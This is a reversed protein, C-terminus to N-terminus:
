DNSLGIHILIFPQMRSLSCNDPCQEGSSGTALWELSTSWYDSIESQPAFGMVLLVSFYKFLLTQDLMFPKGNYKLGVKTAHENSEKIIRRIITADFVQLFIAMNNGREFKILGGDIDAPIQPEQWENWSWGPPPNDKM